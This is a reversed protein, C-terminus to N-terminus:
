RHSDIVDEQRGKSLLHKGPRRFIGGLPSLFVKHSVARQATHADQVQRRDQGARQRGRQEALEPGVHDLDLTGALTIRCPGVRRQAVVADRGAPRHETAGLAADRDIQVVGLRRAQHAPQDRRGIDHHGVEARRRQAPKADVEVIEPCVPRVQDHHVHAREAPGARVGLAGAEGPHGLRVCAQGVPRSLRVARRDERAIRHGVADGADVGGERGHERQALPVAGTLGLQGVDRQVLRQQPHHLVEDDLVARGTLVALALAVLVRVDAGVVEVAGAVAAPHRQGSRGLPHPPAQDPDHVRFVEGDVVGHGRPQRMALLDLRADGCENRLM